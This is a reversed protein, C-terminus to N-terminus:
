GQPGLRRMDIHHLSSFARPGQDQYWASQHKPQIPGLLLDSPKCKSIEAAGINPKDTLCTLWIVDSTELPLAVKLPEGLDRSQEESTVIFYRLNNGRFFTQLKVSRWQTGEFGKQEHYTVWHRKMRKTTVSLYNCAEENCAVGDEVPLSPIPPEHPEPLVLDEPNVLDLGAVYDLLTRRKARYIHHLDKMHRPIASPPVAYHCAVCRVVRYKPLYDLM